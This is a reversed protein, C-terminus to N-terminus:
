VTQKFNINKKLLGLKNFIKLYTHLLMLLGDM